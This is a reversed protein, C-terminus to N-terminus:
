VNRNGKNNNGNNENGYNKDGINENGCNDNGHNRQGENNNGVNCSGQNRHGSNGNGYNCDGNNATGTNDSGRNDVGSNNNGQNNNGQNNNGLNNNGINRDGHNNHGENNYGMNFFGWNTQDQDPTLPSGDANFNLLRMVENFPLERVLTIHRSCNKGPGKLTDEVEVEWYRSDRVGYYNTVERLTDCSHFGLVCLILPKDAPISYRVGPIFPFGNCNINRDTGKYNKM